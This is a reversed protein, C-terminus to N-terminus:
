LISGSAAPRIYKKMFEAYPLVKAADSDFKAKRVQELMVDKPAIAMDELVDDLNDGVIAGTSKEAIRTEGNPLNFVILNINHSTVIEEAPIVWTAIPSQLNGGMQFANYLYTFVKVKKADELAEGREFIHPYLRPFVYVGNFKFCDEGGVNEWNVLSGVIPEGVLFPSGPFDAIVKWSFKASM